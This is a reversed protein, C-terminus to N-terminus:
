QESPMSDDRSLPLEIERGRESSRYAGAILELSDLGDEGDSDPEEGERLVEYVNEYFVSHGSGYFRRTERNIEAIRGDAPREDEFSWHEITDCAAGGVRVTGREGVVTMSAELNEPYTLMTVSMSGIGGTEWEVTLTGTDEVEIDRSLTKTRARVSVPDGFLWRMLDVYHSCQNAFAGGDLERTGRWESADYYSQPRTWFVDIDVLHISGFRGSEVTERLLQLTPNYRLQHVVMLRRRAERCARVARVGNAWRTAVPKECVVHARAASARVIQDPHLGSPSALAVLEPDAGELMAPLDGYGDVGTRRAARNRREPDPDCVGVVEFRGGYEDFAEFHYEAASGCGVVGVSISDM